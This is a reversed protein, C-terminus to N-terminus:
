NCNIVTNKIPNYTFDSKNKQIISLLYDYEVYYYIENEIKKDREKKFDNLKSVSILFSKLEDTKECYGDLLILFEAKSKSLENFQEGTAFANTIESKLQVIKEDYPKFLAEEASILLKRKNKFEDFTRLWSAEVGPTIKLREGISNLILEDIKYSQKQLAGIEIRLQEKQKTLVESNIKVQNSLKTIEAEFNKNEALKQDLLKQKSESDSKLQSITANFKSVEADHVKNQTSNQADIYPIVKSNMLNLLSDLQLKLKSVNVTTTDKDNVKISKSKDKQGLCFLKKNTINKSTLKESKKNITDIQAQDFTTASLVLILFCYKISM